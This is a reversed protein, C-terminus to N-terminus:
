QFQVYMQGITIQDTPQAQNPSAQNPAGPYLVPLGPPPVTAYNTVKPVGGIFFSGQDEIVLPKTLFKKMKPGEQPTVSGASALLAIALLLSSVIYTRPFTFRM